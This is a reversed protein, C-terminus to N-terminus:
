RPSTVVKNRDDDEHPASDDPDEAEAVVTKDGRAEPIKPSRGPGAPIEPGRVQDEPLNDKRYPADEKLGIELKDKLTVDAESLFTAVNAGAINSKAQDCLEVGVDMCTNVRAWRHRYDRGGIWGSPPM